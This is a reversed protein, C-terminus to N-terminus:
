RGCGPVAASREVHVQSGATRAFSHLPVTAILYGARQARRRRAAGHPSVNVDLISQQIIVEESWADGMSQKLAGARLLISFVTRMGFDYHKQSSLQESALRLVQTLKRGM